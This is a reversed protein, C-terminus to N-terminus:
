IDEGLGDASSLTFSVQNSEVSNDSDTITTIGIQEPTGQVGLYEALEHDILTDTCGSDLFAYTSVANGNDATITVPVVNLLVQAQATAIGASSIPTAGPKNDSNGNTNRVESTAPLATNSPKDRKDNVNVNNQPCPRRSNNNGDTHM